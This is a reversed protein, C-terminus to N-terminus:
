TSHGRAAKLARNKPSKHSHLNETHEPLLHKDHAPDTRHTNPAFNQPDEVKKGAM